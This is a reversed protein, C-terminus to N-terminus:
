NLLQTTLVIFLILTAILIEYALMQASSRLAGFLSYKSNSAWSGVIISSVLSLGLIFQFLISYRFDLFSFANQSWPLIAWIFLSVAFFIVPAFFYMIGKSKQPIILQKITLKIADNISQLLGFWGINYCSSRRQVAAIILRDLLIVSVCSLLIFVLIFFSSFNPSHLFPFVHDNFQRLIFPLDLLHHHDQIVSFLSFALMCVHLPILTTISLTSIM